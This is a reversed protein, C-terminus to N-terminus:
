DNLGFYRQCSVSGDESTAQIEQAPKGFAFLSLQLFVKVRFSNGSGIFM